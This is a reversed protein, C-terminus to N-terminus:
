PLAADIRELLSEVGAGTVGSVFVAAPAAEELAARAAPALLDARTLAILVPATIPRDM